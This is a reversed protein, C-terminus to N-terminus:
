ILYKYFLYVLSLLICIIILLLLAIKLHKCREKIKIENKIDLYTNNTPISNINNEIGIRNEVENDNKKEILKEQLIDDKYTDRNSEMTCSLMTNRSERGIESNYHVQFNSLIPLQTEEINNINYETYETNIEFDEFEVLKPLFEDFIKNDENFLKYQNSLEETFSSLSYPKMKNFKTIDTIKKTLKIYLSVLLSYLQDSNIYTSYPLMIIIYCKQDKLIYFIYKGFIFNSKYKIKPAYSKMIIETMIYKIIQLFNGSCETYESLITHKERIVALYIIKINTQFSDNLNEM